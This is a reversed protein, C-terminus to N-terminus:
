RGFCLRCVSFGPESFDADSPKTVVMGKVDVGGRRLTVNGCLSTSGDASLHVVRRLEHFCCVVNENLQGDLDDLVTTPSVPKVEDVPREVFPHPPFTEKLPPRSVGMEMNIGKWPFPPQGPLSGRVAPCWGAAINEIVFRKPILEAACAVSDYRVHMPFRGAWGGLTNATEPDMGLHRACTPMTHRMSHMTFGVAEVALVGCLRLCVQLARCADAWRAASASFGQFDSTPRRVLFDVGSCETKSLAAM